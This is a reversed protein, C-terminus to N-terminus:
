VASLPNKNQIYARAKTRFVSSSVAGVLLIILGCLILILLQELRGAYSQTINRMLYGMLLMPLAIILVDQFYWKFNLGPDFKRHVLPLWAVFSLLNIFLWSYAAGIGGYSTTAWIITPILIIVFVANGILHLRLDGKAYQLYYPFAAAALIGNGLAYLSLIPATEAALIRDGTWIWLLSESFFAMTISVAGATVVILQTANRYIDILGSHNGEAELKSMRPLIVSSIPGSVLMIGSAVLVAMTFYGYDHLSLIKSLILKDTQTVLVWVSSTFAVTMSFKLVPKLPAWEWSLRVQKSLRPQLQYSYYVLGIIEIISVALQYAFFYIPGNDILVLIPLVMVFRLTAVFANFGGLWVLREAGSVIGRYLGCMWRLAITFAILELCTQIEHLPLQNAKLWHEAIYGSGAYLGIGGLIAIVVFIGELARVLRRYTLIDTAGGNHRATERAVTPSLGMDLIAFWVQLMSFFAVLGYAEAGMYKIYLPVMVIGIIAVYFQSSYSALINHKIQM